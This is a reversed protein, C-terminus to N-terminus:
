GISYRWAISYTLASGKSSCLGVEAKITRQCTLQRTLRCSEFTGETQERRHKHNGKSPCSAIYVSASTETTTSQNACCSKGQM